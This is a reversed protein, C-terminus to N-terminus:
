KTRRATKLEEAGFGPYHKLNCAHWQLERRYRELYKNTLLGIM